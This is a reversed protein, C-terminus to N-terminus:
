DSRDKYNAQIFQALAYCDEWTSMYGLSARVSGLPVEVWQSAIQTALFLTVHADHRASSSRPPAPCCCRPRSCFCSRGVTALQWLARLRCHVGGCLQVCGWVGACGGQVWAGVPGYAWVHVGSWAGRGLACGGPVGWVCRQQTGWTWAAPPWPSCCRQRPCRPPGPMAAQRCPRTASCRSSSWTM